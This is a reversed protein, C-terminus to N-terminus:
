KYMKGINKTFLAYLEKLEPHGKLLELHKDITRTDHRTAPGTQVRAPEFHRVREAIASILPHLLNFDLKEQRCYQDALTYLHNAFNSVMVAALHLKLREEDGAIKVEGQLSSAFEAIVALNDPTNADILFPIEPLEDIEKRLSQVPWLIGYNRSCTTLVDKSVSGATHVVLKKDLNLQSAMAAIADDPIALIFIDADKSLSAVDAADAQLLAALRETTVRNRGAVQVVQHGATLIKKGLVTATNGSGIIVTRM